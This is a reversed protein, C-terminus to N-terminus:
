RRHKLRMRFGHAPRLVLEPLPRDEHRRDVMELKYARLLTSLVIKEQMMAFRQGVFM